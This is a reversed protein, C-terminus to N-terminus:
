TGGQEKAKLKTADDRVQRESVGFKKATDKTPSKSGARERERQYLARQEWAPRPVEDAPRIPIEAYGLVILGGSYAGPALEDQYDYHM